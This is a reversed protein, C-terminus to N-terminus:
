CVLSQCHHGGGGLSSVVQHLPKHLAMLSPQPRRPMLLNPNLSLSMCPGFYNAPPSTSFCTARVMMAIGSSCAVSHKPSLRDIYRDETRLYATCGFVHVRALDTPVCHLITFPAGGSGGTAAPSPLRNRLYVATRMAHGWYKAPCNAHQLMATASEALTAWQREMKALQNHTYPATFDATYGLSSVMSRCAVDLYNPECDLKITPTFACAHHLRSHL